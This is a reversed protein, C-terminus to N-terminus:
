RRGLAYLMKSRLLRAPDAEVEAAILARYRRELGALADAPLERVAQYAASRLNSEWARDLDRRSLEVEETVVEGGVFGADDLAQLCAASSGLPACPDELLVGYDAACSRFLRAAVPFGAQITSFGIVGGDRLLRRWELLGASVPIYLLSTACTIADFAGDPFRGLATADCQVLELNTVTSAAAAARAEHLMGGSIDVGVVHGDPGVQRVAHLAAFGTGTGADLVRHGPGLRCLDVLRQASDRHWDSDRYGPAREDFAAAIAQNRQNM